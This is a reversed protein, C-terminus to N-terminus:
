SGDREAREILASQPHPELEIRKEPGCHATLREAESREYIGAASLRTTYGAADPRWYCGHEGSWILVYKSEQASM